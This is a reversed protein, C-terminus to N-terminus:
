AVVWGALVVRVVVPSVRVVLGVPFPRAVPAALRLNVPSCVARRRVVRVRLGVRVWARLRVAPSCVARRHAVPAVLQLNVPSCAARQHVVERVRLVGRVWARLRVAQV